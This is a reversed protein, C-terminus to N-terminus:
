HKCRHNVWSLLDLQIQDILPAPECFLGHLADYQKLTKDLSPSKEMLEFSGENKVVVDENAVMCLFPIDVDSLSARTEAALNVCAAASAVRLKAGSVTLDDDDCERRKDADRYQKASSTASSSILQITPVLFSLGKLVYRLPEAVNLALMPALLVVGALRDSISNASINMNMNMNMNMKKSASLAIAGGLSSGVLFLPLKNEYLNDAYHAIQVGDEVLAHESPVYGRMGGSRGHGPLDVAVVAYNASELLEAVYRVTPYNGHALFGHYIVAVGKPQVANTWRHVFCETGRLILNTRPAGNSSPDDNNSVAM